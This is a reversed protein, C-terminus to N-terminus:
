SQASQIPKRRWSRMMMGLLPGILMGVILALVVFVSVPLQRSAQGLLSLSVSQKNELVFALVVFAVLLVVVVLAVRKVGRM